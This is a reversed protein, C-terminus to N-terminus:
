ARPRDVITCIAWKLTSITLSTAENRDSAYWSIFVSVAREVNIHDLLASLDACLKKTSYEEASQPKDTGGYGLMDPVIVRYGKRVWPGIQFRWGYRRSVYLSGIVEGSSYCLIYSPFQTNTLSSLARLEGSILSATYVCCLSTVHLTM